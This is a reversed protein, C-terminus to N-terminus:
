NKKKHVKFYIPLKNNHLKESFDKKCTNAKKLGEIKKNSYKYDWM